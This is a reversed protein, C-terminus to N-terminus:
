DDKVEDRHLTWFGSSKTFGTQGGPRMALLSTGNASRTGGLSSWFAKSASDDAYGIVTWPEDRHGEASVIDGAQFRGTKFADPYLTKIVRKLDTCGDAYVKKVDDETPQNM